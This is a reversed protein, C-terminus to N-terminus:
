MTLLMHLSKNCFRTLNVNAKKGHLQAFRHTRWSNPLYLGASLIQLLINTVNPIYGVTRERKKLLVKKKLDRLTHFNNQFHSAHVINFFFDM